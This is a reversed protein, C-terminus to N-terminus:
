LHIEEKGKEAESYRVIKRGTRIPSLAKLIGVAVLGVILLFLLLSIMVEGATMTPVIVIDSTTAITTSAMTCTSTAFAFPALSAAPAGSFDVPDGYTCEQM